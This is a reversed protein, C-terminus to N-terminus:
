RLPGSWAHPRGGAAQGVLEDCVWDQLARLDPPLALTLLQESRCFADVQLSMAQWGRVVAATEPLVPYSLDCTREGRVAAGERVSDAEDIERAYRGALSDVMVQLREPVERAAPHTTGLRILTLERLVDETHETLRQGLVVPYALLFARTPVPHAAGTVGGM